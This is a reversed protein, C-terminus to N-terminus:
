QVIMQKTQTFTGQPSQAIIRYQYIGTALRGANFPLTHPGATEDEDVLLAMPRGAGDYVQLTVHSNQTLTYTITTAGRFPNPYNSLQTASPGALTSALGTLTDPSSAALTLIGSLHIYQVTNIATINNATGTVNVQPYTVEGLRSSPTFIAIGGAVDSGNAPGNYTEEWGLSGASTVQVITYNATSGVGTTGAV